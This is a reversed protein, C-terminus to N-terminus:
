LKHIALKVRAFNQLITCEIHKFCANSRVQEEYPEYVSENNSADRPIVFRHLRSESQRADLWRDVMLRFYVTGETGTCVRTCNFIQQKDGAPTANIRSSAPWRLAAGFLRRSVGLSFSLSPAIPPPSSLSRSAM